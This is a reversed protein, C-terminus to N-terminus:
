PICNSFLRSGNSHCGRSGSACVADSGNSHLLALVVLHLQLHNKAAILFPNAIGHKDNGGKEDILLGSKAGGGDPNGRCLTGGPAM